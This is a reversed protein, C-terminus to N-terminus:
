MGQSGANTAGAADGSANSGKVVDDNEISRTARKVTSKLSGLRYSVGVSLRMLDSRNDSLSRFTPTTISSRFHRYRGIFNGATLSLSLRDEALFARTLNLSYFFFGAGKGQLNVDATNGGIWLNAKLRWPLTQKIGGWMNASFGSNHSDIVSAKYDSYNASANLNLSTTKTFSWNVFTSLSTVKSHQFNGYTKNTVGNEVFSYSVMGNNSFAYTLSANLTLKPGFTSFTFNLNHSKESVLNPNGYEVMEPTYTTRYPTLYSISPRGIRLNYGAKLLLTPKLNFGVSASPVWDGLHTSFGAQHGDPYSVRVKYYEYREGVMASWKGAKVNYEAYAAGINGHHRYRVSNQEDLVYDASVDGAKRAYEMSNSRNVRSIYKAGVSLTHHKPADLPTTFDAQTTHEYSLNDPDTRLDRLGFEDPLQTLEDNVTTAKTYQPSYDYRYSLTLRQEDKFTHQFDTSANIGQYLSKSHSHTRYSYVPAGEVNTMVSQSTSNNRGNWGHIGASFSLLDKPSFEYSGDLSGYQFLGHSNYKTDNRFLHNTAEDYIERESHSRNNPHESYGTGYHASLMFKGFQAMGFLSGMGGRNSGNANISLTYGSTSSKQNTIINLVGAVGEADYKAGPNTIVEIKQISSAPYAKFIMSPNASMMSSPKGDVYVKFSSNGNVKINDEGDVTVMPVKRLMELLSSNKADPDDTLSYTMKDIEAKVLTRQATVTAVGLTADYEKIYLTDLKLTRHADDFIATRRVPAKGVSLLELQYRGRQPANISFSGDAQTTGVKVPKGNTLLRVTAFSEPAGTLSDCLTGSVVYKQASAQQVFGIPLTLTLLLLSLHKTKM